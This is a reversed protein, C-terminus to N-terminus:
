TAKDESWADLLLTHGVVEGDAQIEKGVLANLVSDSFANGGRRRLLFEEQGTRFCVAEHESKSGPAYAKRFVTGRFIM